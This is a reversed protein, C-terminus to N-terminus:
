DAATAARKMARCLRREEKDKAKAEDVTQWQMNAPHDAGGACLAAIHDIIWGPCVGRSKGTAPCPNERMFAARNTTSRTDALAAAPLLALLVFLISKVHNMAAIM